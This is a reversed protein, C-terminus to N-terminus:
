RAGRLIALIVIEIIQLQEGDLRDLFRHLRAIVEARTLGQSAAAPHRQAKFDIVEASM